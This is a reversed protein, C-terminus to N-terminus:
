IIIITFLSVIFVLPATVVVSDFRDLMGGHGPIINGYDKIGLHRKIISFSLDGLISLPTNILGIIVLAWFNVYDYGFIFRFILGIILSCVLGSVLGGLAGEVTKKPSIKPCLKHNGYKVGVFYAGADACWPIAMILVAFFACYAPYSTTMCSITAVGVSIITSIFFAYTIESLKIEEHFFVMVFLMAVMYVFFPVFWFSTFSVMPLAFAFALCLSSVKYNNLMKRAMLGESVMIVSLLSLLVTTIFPTLFQSLLLIIVVASSGIVGSMVRTKMGIRRYGALGEIERPM